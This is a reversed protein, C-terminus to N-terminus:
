FAVATAGSTLSPGSHDVRRENSGDSCRLWLRSPTSDSAGPWHIFALTGRSKSRAAALDEGARSAPSGGALGARDTAQRGSWESHTASGRGAGVGAWPVVAPLARPYWGERVCWVNALAKASRLTM